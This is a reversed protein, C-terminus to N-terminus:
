HSSRHLIRRVLFRQQEVELVSYPPVQVEAPSLGSQVTVAKPNAPTNSVSPDSGTVFRVLFPGSPVANNVRILVPETKASKNTVVLSLNGARDTYSMAFLAPTQGQPAGTAPVTDGGTVTTRNAAVARNIVGNLVALGAGQASLYFGFDLTSTDITTGKNAAAVVDTYHPNTAFVGSVEWIAHPGVYVVSPVTSMRMIFEAVYIGGWLTGDTLSAAGTSPDVPLSPDFETILFRTGPPSIPALRDTVLASSKTALVGSEDAMWQAFGGTSFAPYYHFTVADWYKDPYSQIGSDWPNLMGSSGPAQAFIAVVANPDAAKIADRYPKMKDLYETATHFFGPFLYAENALEWVSVRIQNAKAYAAMQGISQPTDTFANACVILSAGLLNARKAADIMRAGGKRAVFKVVDPKPGATYGAFQDKWAQVEEGTQWDYADGSSGGPFRIWGYSIQAAIANFKSDWYEVPFGLDDNIGSFGPQIPQPATTDIDITAPAGEDAPVRALSLASPAEANASALGFAASM